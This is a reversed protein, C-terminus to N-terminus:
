RRQGHWSDKRKLKEKERCVAANACTCAKTRRREGSKM